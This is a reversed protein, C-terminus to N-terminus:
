RYRERFNEIRHFTIYNSDHYSHAGCYATRSLFIIDDGDFQFDVYQFGTKSDRGINGYDQPDELLTEHYKWHRLDKSSFISLVNRQNPNNPNTNNNALTWYRKTKPDYRIAFKTMGGPFEIFGTKSDFEVRRGEDLVNVIAARNVIPLSNVRLINLLNGQTDVVVNGELWGAARGGPLHEAGSAFEPPDTEQNYALHNSKRWSSAKLLDADADASIVLSHFGKPWEQTVNDEFARYIRGQYEVVPMPACHYNPPEKGSGGPFLLGSEADKPDTWTTGNDDSKRIVISGYQESCGLYYLSGRHLFLNAWFTGVFQREFKWTKGNDTSRFLRAQNYQRNEASKPAGPGFLDMAALIDGNELRILSPSGIYIKSQAPSFDVVSELPNLREAQSVHSTSVCSNLVGLAAILVFCFQFCRRGIM